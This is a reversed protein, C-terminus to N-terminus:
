QDDLLRTVRELVDSTDAPTEVTVKVKEGDRTIQVKIRRSKVRETLWAFFPKALPAVAALVMAADAAAGQEGAAPGVMRLTVAGRLDDDDSLWAVLDRADRDKEATSGDFEFVIESV